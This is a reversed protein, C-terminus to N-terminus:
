AVILARKRSICRKVLALSLVHPPPSLTGEQLPDFQLHPALSQNWGEMKSHLDDLMKSLDGSTRDFIREAYINNLISNMICALKCLATFTSVSYAPGSVASSPCESGYAFPIWDENEEFEDLFSIPVSSDAEQLSVPRGQYLSM